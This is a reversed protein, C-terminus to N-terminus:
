KDSCLRVWGMLQKRNRCSRRSSPDSSRCGAILLPSPSPSFGSIPVVFFPTGSRRRRFCPLFSPHFHYLIDNHVGGCLVAYCKLSIAVSCPLYLTFSRVVLIYRPQPVETFYYNKAGFRDNDGLLLRWKRNRVHM